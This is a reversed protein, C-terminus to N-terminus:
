SAGVEGTHRVTSVDEFFKYWGKLTEKQEESLEEEGKSVPVADEPKMSSIALAKSADRGAFVGYKGGPKYLVGNPTM